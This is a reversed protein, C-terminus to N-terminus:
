LYIASLITTLGNITSPIETHMIKSVIKSLLQLSIQRNMHKNWVVLLLDHVHETLAELEPEKQINLQM